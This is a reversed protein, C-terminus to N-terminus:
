GPPSRTIAAAGSCHCAPACAPPPFLDRPLPVLLLLSAGVARVDEQLLAARRVEVVACRREHDVVFCSAELGFDLAYNIRWSQGTLLNRVVLHTAFGVYLIETGPVAHLGTCHDEERFVWRATNLNNSTPALDDSRTPFFTVELVAATVVGDVRAAEMTAFLRGDEQAKYAFPSCWTVWQPYHETQFCGVLVTSPLPPTPSRRASPSAPSNAFEPFAVRVVEVTHLGVNLGAIHADRTGIIVFEGDREPCIGIVSTINQMLYPYIVEPGRRLVGRLALMCVQVEMEYDFVLFPVASGTPAGHEAGCPSRHFIHFTPRTLRHCWRHLTWSRGGIRLQFERPASPDCVLFDTAPDLAGPALFATKQGTGRWLVAQAELSDDVYSALVHLAEPLSRHPFAVRAAAEAVRRARVPPRM